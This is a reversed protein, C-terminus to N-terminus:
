PDRTSLFATSLEEVVRGSFVRTASLEEIAQLLFLDPSRPIGLRSLFGTFQWSSSTALYHRRRAFHEAIGYFSKSRRPLDGMDGAYIKFTFKL